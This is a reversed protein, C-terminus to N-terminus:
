NLFELIQNAVFENGRDTFHIPDVLFARKLNNKNENIMPRENELTNFITTFNICKLELCLESKMMLDIYILYNKKFKELDDSDFIESQINIKNRPMYFPQFILIYRPANIKNNIKLFSNIFFYKKTTEEVLSVIKKKEFSCNDVNTNSKNELFIIKKIINISKPFKELLLEFFSRGSIKEELKIWYSNAFKINKNDYNVKCFEYFNYFDNFGSLSIVLNINQDYNNVLSLFEQYSTWGPVGYNRFNYKTQKQNLYSPITTNDSTSFIGFATSGGLFLAKKFSKNYHSARFGNNELKIIDENLRNIKDIDKKKFPNSNLFIPSLFSGAFNYPSVSLKKQYYNQLHLNHQGVTTINKKNKFKYYVYKAIDGGGGYDVFIFTSPLVIFFFIFFLKFFKKIM